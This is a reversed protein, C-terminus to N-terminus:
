LEINAEAAIGLAVKGGKQRVRFNIATQVGGFDAIEMASPYLFSPANASVTRVPEGGDLIEVQYAEVDEDLPIEDGEWGDAYIRSRRVWSLQIGGGTRAAALHVPSLPTESRVGGAFSVPGVSGGGSGAAEGLWNLVLGAEDAHLGLSRVGEDLLVFPSVAAAGAAMADETGALGRLLGSLEWHNETIEEANRFGIIEWEGNAAKIAARNAGNLLALESVSSLGGYIMRVSIRSAEDIRGVV